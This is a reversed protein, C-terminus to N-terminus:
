DQSFLVWAVLLTLIINFTQATLFSWIYKSNEKKFIYRFDTELGICIFALSFLLGRSGKNAIRSLEKGTEADFVFSFVLSAILFGLVFKPFRDWLITGTPRIESNTGRYSWYISIIFAAVGLLNLLHFNLHYSKLYVSIQSLKLSLLLM